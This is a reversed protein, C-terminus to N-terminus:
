GPLLFLFVLTPGFPKISLPLRGPKKKVWGSAFGCIVCMGAMFTMVDGSSGGSDHAIEPQRAHVCPSLPSVVFSVTIPVIPINWFCLTLARFDTMFLIISKHLKKM